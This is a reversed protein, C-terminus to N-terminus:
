LNPNNSTEQIPLPWCTQDGIPGYGNTKFYPTGPVPVFPVAAGNRRFDGMRKGELFFDLSKQTMLEALVSADDTPGSYAPQGNAARREDILALEASPGNAEAAIYKAELGSALRMPAAYSTYKAQAYFPTVGDQASLGSGPLKYLVRPDGSTSDVIRGLSRFGESVSISGRGFTRAWFQNGVRDRNAPDDAYTLNFVFDAPVVAADTAAETKKGAQLEARARGVLAANAFATGTATGSAQGIAIARTFHAQASDLMAASDLAPGVRVTGVCFEEAMLEFAYGSVLEARALALSTDAGPAASLVDIVQGSSVIADSLGGFVTNIDGDNDLIARRAFDNPGQFTETAITEGTFWAVYMAQFSYTAVLDQFSSLSLTEADRAPDIEGVDVTGTNSVSLFDNCGYAAVIAAVALTRRLATRLLFPM